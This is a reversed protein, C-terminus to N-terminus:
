FLREPLERSPLSAVCKFKDQKYKSRIVTLPSSGDSSHLNQLALVANKLDLQQYNTYHELTDNWPHRSQDLMWKALFVASAAITSPLFVLFNYDILTLEALYNALHELEVSRIELSAQAARLFRRLFAITTPASLPFKLNNLVQSEMQVVESKTYTNDTIICFDEISPACQEEYKSAILMCTIGLLQLRQREIYNQSLFLDILHITLYLTEPDLKYEVSVEVLWDVLVGRMSPTVDRQVTEMFNFQPRHMLEAVRLNSYIESAYLGCMLPDKQDSDIDTFDPKISLTPKEHVDIKGKRSSRQLKSINVNNKMEPTGRVKKLSKIQDFKMACEVTTSQSHASVQQAKMKSINVPNKKTLMSNKKPILICNKLSNECCINTIDQLVARRKNQSISTANINNNNEDQVPRKPNKRLVRSLGQEKPPDSSVSLQINAARARTVRFNTEGFTTGNKM